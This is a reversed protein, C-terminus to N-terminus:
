QSVGPPEPGSSVVAPRAALSVVTVSQSGTLLCGSKLVAVAATLRTSFPEPRYEQAGVVAAEAGRRGSPRRAVAPPADASTCSSDPVLPSWRRPPACHVADRVRQACEVVALPRQGPLEDDDGGAVAGFVLDITRSADHDVVCVVVLGSALVAEEASAARVAGRALLAEGKDTSRNWVTTPHGADLFAGALAQGMAGLGIVTVPAPAPTNTSTTMRVMTM